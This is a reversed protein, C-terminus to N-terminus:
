RDYMVYYFFIQCKADVVDNYDVIFPAGVANVVNTRAQISLGSQTNKTILVDMVHHEGKRQGRWILIDWFKWPCHFTPLLKRAVQLAEDVQEPLSFTPESASSRTANFQAIGQTIADRSMGALKLAETTANQARRAFLADIGSVTPAPILM